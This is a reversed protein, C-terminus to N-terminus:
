GVQIQFVKLNSKNKPLKKITLNLGALKELQPPVSGERETLTEQNYRDRQASVSGPSDWSRNGLLGRRSLHKGCAFLCVSLCLSLCVSKLTYFPLTFCVFIFCLFVSVFISPIVSPQKKVTYVVEGGGWQEISFHGFGTFELQLPVCLVTSRWM